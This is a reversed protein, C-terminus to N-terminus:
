RRPRRWRPGTRRANAACRSPRRRREAPGGGRDVAQKLAGGVRARALDQRDGRLVLEDRGGVAETSSTQDHGSAEGGEVDEGAVREGAIREGDDEVPLAELGRAHLRDRALEVQGLGHEHHRRVVRAM